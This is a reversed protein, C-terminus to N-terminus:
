DGMAMDWINSVQSSMFSLSFPNWDVSTEFISSLFNMDLASNYVTKYLFNAGTAALADEFHKSKRAKKSSSLVSAIKSPYSHVASRKYSETISAKSVAVAM